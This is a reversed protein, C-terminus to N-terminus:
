VCVIWFKAVVCFYRRSQLPEWRWQVNKKKKVLFLAFPLRCCLTLACRWLDLLAPPAGGARVVNLELCSVSRQALAFQGRIRTADASAVLIGSIRLTGLGWTGRSTTCPHLQQAFHQLPSLSFFFCFVVRNGTRTESNRRQFLVACQTQRRSMFTMVYEASQREADKVRSATKECWARQLGVGGCHVAVNHWLVFHRNASKCIPQPSSPWNPLVVYIFLTETRGM